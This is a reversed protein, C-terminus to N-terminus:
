YAYPHGYVAAATRSSAASRTQWRRSVARGRMYPAAVLAGAVAAVAALAVGAFALLALYPCLLIAMAGVPVLPTWACCCRVTIAGGPSPTVTNTVSCPNRSPAQVRM